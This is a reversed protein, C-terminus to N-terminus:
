TYDQFFFRGYDGLIGQATDSVTTTLKMLVYAATSQRNYHYKDEKRHHSVLLLIIFDQLFILLWVPVWCNKCVGICMDDLSRIM